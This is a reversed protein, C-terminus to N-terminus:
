PRSLPCLLPTQDPRPMQGPRPSGASVPSPSLCQTESPLRPPTPATMSPGLCEGTAAAVLPVESDPASAPHSTQFPQEMRMQSLTEPGEGCRCDFASITRLHSRACPGKWIHPSRLACNWSLPLHRARSLKPFTPSPKRRTGILPCPGPLWDGLPPPSSPQVYNEGLTPPHLIPGSHRNECLKGLTDILCDINPM